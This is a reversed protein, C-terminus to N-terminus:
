IVSYHGAKNLPRPKPPFYVSPRLYLGPRFDFNVGEVQQSVGCWLGHSQSQSLPRTWSSRALAIGGGGRQEMVCVMATVPCLRAGTAGVIVDSGSGFQDCKSQKLHFQVMTPRAVNDVAVDGWALGTAPNFAGVSARRAPLLRFLGLMRHGM